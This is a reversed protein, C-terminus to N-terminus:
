FLRRGVFLNECMEEFFPAYSRYNDRCVKCETVRLLEGSVFDMDARRVPKEPWLALRFRFLFHFHHPTRQSDRFSSELAANFNQFSGLWTSPFSQAPM